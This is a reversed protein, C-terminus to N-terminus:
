QFIKFFIFDGKINTRSIITFTIIKVTPHHFQCVHGGTEPTTLEPYVRCLPNVVLD